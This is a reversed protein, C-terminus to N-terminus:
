SSSIGEGEGSMEIISSRSERRREEGVTEPYYKPLKEEGNAVWRVVIKGEKKGEGGGLTEGRFSKKRQGAMTRKKKQSIKKGFRFLIGKKKKEGWTL